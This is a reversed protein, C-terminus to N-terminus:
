VGKTVWIRFFDNNVADLMEESLSAMKTSCLVADLRDAESPRAVRAEYEERLVDTSKNRNFRSKTEVDNDRRENWDRIQKFADSFGKKEKRYTEVSDGIRSMMDVVDDENHMALSECNINIPSKTLEFLFGQILAHNKIVIPIEEFVDYTSIKKEALVSASFPKESKIQEMVCDKLRYAKIGLRGHRTAIPDFIILVSSPIKSQFKYQSMATAKTLFESYFSCKYFGVNYSDVGLKEAMELYERSYSEPVGERYRFCDTVEVTGGKPLGLLSGTVEDVVAEDCHRIIKLLALGELQIQTIPEKKELQLLKAEQREKATIFKQNQKQGWVNSRTRGVKLTSQNKVRESYNTQVQPAAM